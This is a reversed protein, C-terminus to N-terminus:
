GSPGGTVNVWLQVYNGTYTLTLNVPNYMWLEGVIRFEGTENLRLVLPATWTENNLLVRQYVLLPKGLLPPQTTSNTVYVYIVYWIPRGMHNYVMIYLRISQNVAVVGPYGGIEGGPGLLGIASFETVRAEVLGQTIIFVTFVIILALLLSLVEENILFGRPRGSGPTVRDGGRLRLWLGGVLSRRRAYLLGAAILAVAGSVGYEIYRIMLRFEAERILGPAKALIMSAISSAEAYQGTESLNIARNLMNVLTTANGGEAGILSANGYAWLLNVNPQQAHAIPHLLSLAVAALLAMLVSLKAM